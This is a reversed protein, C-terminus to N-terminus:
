RLDEKIKWRINKISLEYGAKIYIEPNSQGQLLQQEQLPSKKFVFLLEFVSM